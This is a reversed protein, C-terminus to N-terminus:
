GSHSGLRRLSAIRVYGRRSGKVAAVPTRSYPLPRNDWASMDLWALPLPKLEAGFQPEATKPAEEEYAPAKRALQIFEENTRGANLWDSVDEKDALGPLRLVKISAAVDKIGEFISRAYDEGAKDNDPVIIVDRDAFYPNLHEHWGKAGGASTTVLHGLSALRDADKEGEM